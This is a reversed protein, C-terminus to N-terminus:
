PPESPGQELPLRGRDVKYLCYAGKCDAVSLAQTSEIRSMVKSYEAWTKASNFTGPRQVLLYQVATLDALKFKGPWWDPTGGPDMGRKYGVPLHDTYKGWFQTNVGGNEVTYYMPVFHTVKFQDGFYQSQKGFSLSALVGPPTAIKLLALAPAVEKNFELTRWAFHMSALISAAGLSMVARKSQFRLPSVCALALIVGFAVIRFDIFTFETPVYIGWPALFAVVLLGAASGRARTKISAKIGPSLRDSAAAALGLMAAVMLQGTWRFPGFIAWLGYGVKTLPDNWKAKVLESFFSLGSNSKFVDRWDVHAVSGLGPEGSLNWFGFVLALPTVAFLSADLSVSDRKALGHITLYAIFIGAVAVHLSALLVSTVVLGFRTWFSRDGASLRLYCAVAGMLVPGTLAFELFGMCAVPNWIILTALLATGPLGERRDLGNSARVLATFAFVTAMVYVSLVLRVATVLSLLPTLAALVYYTTFYTQFREPLQYLRQFLATKDYDALIRAYALHQPLDQGPLIPAAWIVGLHIATAVLLAIRVARDRHRHDELAGEL